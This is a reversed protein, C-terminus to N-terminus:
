RCGAVLASIQASTTLLSSAVTAGGALSTGTLGLMLRLALLGDTQTLVLNDGDFDHRKSAIFSEIAFNTNRTAGSGIAGSVLSPGRLGLLYRTLM